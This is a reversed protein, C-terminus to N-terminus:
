WRRRGDARRAGQQAESLSDIYAYHGNGKDALKELTADKLNGMGFGLVSLFVGSKAKDEILRILEDPQHRRRQLRRRHRPHRPEDGGNIFNTCPWRRLRAPHGAGGNTSGGAQLQEIARSSRPRTSRCPTPPLVLGSAGAYVVIAVRDNEGLQEVLLKCRGSKVLPLKDAHDMSGSVDILFVLNSPPRQGPRDDRAKIGIRM